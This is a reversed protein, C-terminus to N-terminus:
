YAEKIIKEMFHSNLAMRRIESITQLDSQSIDEARFSIGIPQEQESPNCFAELSYGYLGLLRELQEIALNNEGSEVRAIYVPPVDMFEAIQEQTLGSAERLKKLKEYVIVM